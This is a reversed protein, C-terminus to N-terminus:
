ERFAVEAQAFLARFAEVCADGTPTVFVHVVRRDQRTRTREVLGTDELRNLLGSVTHGEEHLYRALSSPSIGPQEHALLVVRAATVGSVGAALALLGREIYRTIEQAHNLAEVIAFDEISKVKTPTVM